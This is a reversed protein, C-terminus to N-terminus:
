SVIKTPATLNPIDTSVKSNLVPLNSGDGGKNSDDLYFKIYVGTCVLTLAIGLIIWWHDRNLYM